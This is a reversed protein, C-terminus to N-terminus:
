GLSGYRRVTSWLPKSVECVWDILEQAPERGIQHQVCFRAFWLENWTVESIMITQNRKLRTVTDLYKMQLPLQPSLIPTSAIYDVDEETLDVSNLLKVYCCTSKHKELALKSHIKRGCECAFKDRIRKGKSNRYGKCKTKRHARLGMETFKVSCNDCFFDM